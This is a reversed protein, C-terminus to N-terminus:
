CKILDRGNGCYYLDAWFQADILYREQKKSWASFTALLKLMINLYSHDSVSGSGFLKKIEGYHKGGIVGTDDTPDSPITSWPDSEWHSHRVGKEKFLKVGEETACTPGNFGISEVNSFNNRKLFYNRLLAEPEGNSQGAILTYLEPNKIAMVIDGMSSKVQEYFGPHFPKGFPIGNLNVLWEMKNKTGDCGILNVTDFQAIFYTDTPKQFLYFYLPTGVYKLMLNTCKELDDWAAICSIILAQSHRSLASFKDHIM